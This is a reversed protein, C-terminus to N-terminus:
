PFYHQRVSSIIPYHVYAVVKIRGFMNLIGKVVPYTFAAGITDCYIDVPQLFICELAVCISGLSQGIM